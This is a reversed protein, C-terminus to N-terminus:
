IAELRRSTEDWQKQTEPKAPTSLYTQYAAAADQLHGLNDHCQGIYRAKDPSPQAANAAEFDALAGAYDGAKFKKEGSQVLEAPPKAPAAAVPASPPTGPPTQPTPPPTQPAQALAPMTALGMAIALSAAIVKSLA